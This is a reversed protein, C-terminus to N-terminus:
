FTSMQSTSANLYQMTKEDNIQMEGVDPAHSIIKLTERLQNSRKEMQLKSHNLQEYMMRLYKTQAEEDDIKEQTKHM